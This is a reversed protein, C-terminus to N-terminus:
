LPEEKNPNFPSAACSPSSPSILEKQQHMAAVEDRLDKVKKEVDDLKAYLSNMMGVANFSLQAACFTQQFLTCMRCDQPCSRTTQGETPKSAEM